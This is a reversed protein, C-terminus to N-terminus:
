VFHSFLVYILKNNTKISFYYKTYYDTYFSFQKNKNFFYVNNGMLSTAIGDRFYDM